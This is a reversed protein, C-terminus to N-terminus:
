IRISFQISTGGDNTIEFKGNIDEIRKRMNQLGNGFQDIRSFDIGIGDDKIIIEFLDPENIKINFYVNQSKSHKVINNIAEKIVLFINHRIEASVFKSPLKEPINIILEKECVTLYDEIYKASYYILKDLKDNRPNVAWVIEDMTTALNRGTEAIQELRTQIEKRDDLNSKALESLLSMKTVSSGLEDHMDKSIRIREQELTKEAEVIKLRRQYKLSLYYRTSAIILGLILFSTIIKFWITEWFYPQIYISVEAIASKINNYKDVAFVRFNYRGHPLHTYIAKRSGKSDIWDEDIGRLQYMYDINTSGSYSIATFDFEIRQQDRPIKQFGPSFYNKSNVIMNEIIIKPKVKKISIHNPSIYVAGNFTSFLIHGDSTKLVTQPSSGTCRETLMGENTGYSHFALRKIQKHDIKKFQTRDVSFIGNRTSFWFNSKNDSVINLLKNTPLGNAMLYNFIKNGNIRSLGGGNITLWINRKNDEYISSIINGKLGTNKDLIQITGNKKDYIDVGGGSTGIWYNGDFSKHIFSVLNNSLGNSKDLFKFKGNKLICVGAGNTGIWISGDPDEYISRVFNVKLGNSSTYNTVNKGDFLYLGFLRTGVLLRGQKDRKIAYIHNEKLIDMKVAVPSNINIVRYIGKHTGILISGDKDQYLCNIFDADLGNKRSIVKIPARKIQNLGGNVTGVWVDKNIIQVKTLKNDSLGNEKTFNYLNKGTFIFLGKNYTAIWINGDRDEAISLILENSLKNLQDYSIKKNKNFVNIGRNTGIWVRHQSDEFISKIWNSSLEVDKINKKFKGSVLEYIGNGNTGVMVKNNDGICISSISKSKLGKLSDYLIFKHGNFRSLGGDLTGIWLSNKDAALCSINNSILGKTAEFFNFKGNKFRILGEPNTAIWLNGSSDECINKLSEDIMQPTNEPNYVKFNKGDYRALGKDTSLWVFGTKDCLIDKVYNSPLDNHIDIVRCILGYNNLSADFFLTKKTQPIVTSCFLCFYLTLITKM